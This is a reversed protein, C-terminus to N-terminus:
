LMRGNLLVPNYGAAKIVESQDNDGASVVIKM